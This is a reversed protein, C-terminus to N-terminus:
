KIEELQELQDYAACSPKSSRCSTFTAAMFLLVLVYTISKKM